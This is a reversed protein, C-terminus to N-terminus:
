QAASAAASNVSAEERQRQRLTQNPDIRAILQGKKVHDGEKVALESLKGAIKFSIDVQTLELNGSLRIRGDDHNNRSWWIYGGIIAALIVVVPIIKKM